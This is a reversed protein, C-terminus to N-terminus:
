LAITRGEIAAITGPRIRSAESVIRDMCADDHEPAHHFLCFTKVKAADALRLGDRWASHGWGTKSAIEEDTYTCDYILLDVGQAFEALRADTEKGSENDTLYALAHGAFDLRYGTAGGPHDLPTTRLALHPAPTLTDGARFDRYEVHAKFADPTIPFIPESMMREIAGRTSTGSALHGSWVRFRHAAEYFPAFFPLGGIHDIHTHSLFIDADIPKGAAQLEDGLERIGTGGDFIILRDGCRVEVCPTNGGYRATRPGPSAISGRVGRFTVIFTETM